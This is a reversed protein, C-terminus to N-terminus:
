ERKGKKFNEFSHYSFRLMFNVMKVMKPAYNLPM